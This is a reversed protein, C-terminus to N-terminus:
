RSAFESGVNRKIHCRPKKLRTLATKEVTVLALLTDIQQPAHGFSWPM